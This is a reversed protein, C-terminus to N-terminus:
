HLATSRVWRLTISPGIFPAGRLAVPERIEGSPLHSHFPVAQIGIGVEGLVDLPKGRQSTMTAAMKKKGIVTTMRMTRDFQDTLVFAIAEPAQITTSSAAPM